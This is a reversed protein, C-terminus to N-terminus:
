FSQVKQCLSVYCWMEFMDICRKGNRPADEVNGNSLETEGSLQAARFNEYHSEQTVEKLDQM